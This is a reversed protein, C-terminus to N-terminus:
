HVDVYGGCGGTPPCMTPDSMTMTACYTAGPTLTPMPNTIYYGGGISPDTNGAFPVGVTYGITDTNSPGASGLVTGGGCPQTSLTMNRPMPTGGYMPTEAGVINLPTGSPTTPATFCNVLAGNQNIPAMFNTGSATGGCGSVNGFPAGSFGQAACTSQIQSCTPLTGLVPTSTTYGQTGGVQGLSTPAQSGNCYDSKCAYASISSLASGLLLATAGIAVRHILKM